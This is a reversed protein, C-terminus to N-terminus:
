KKMFVIMSAQRLKPRYEFRIKRYEFEKTETYDDLPHAKLNKPYQDNFWQVADQGSVRDLFDALRFTEKINVDRNTAFTITWKVTQPELKSGIIEVSANYSDSASFEEQGGVNPGQKFVFESDLQRCTMMLGYRTNIPDAVELDSVTPPPGQRGPDKVAPPSSQAYAMSSAAQVILIFVLAALPKVTATVQKSRFLNM